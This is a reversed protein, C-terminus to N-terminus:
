FIGSFGLFHNENKLQSLITTPEKTELDKMLEHYRELKYFRRHKADAEIKKDMSVFFISLQSRLVKRVFLM